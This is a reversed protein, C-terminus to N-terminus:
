TELFSQARDKESLKVILLHAILVIYKGSSIDVNQAIASSCENIVETKQM